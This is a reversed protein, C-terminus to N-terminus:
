SWTFFLENVCLSSLSGCDKFHILLMLCSGLIFSRYKRQMVSKKDTYDEFELKFKIKTLYKYWISELARNKPEGSNKKSEETRSLGSIIEM